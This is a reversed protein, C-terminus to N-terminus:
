QHLDFGEIHVDLNHNVRLGVIGKTDVTKAEATHVTQGNVKFDVKATNQKADIELLNTAKGQADAKKVAPHATWGKTIETTKEGNRQKILYTGDGRVLFYTYKQGNGNLAQGGFFLGYGEPHTPNKMQNFRALTHFPGNARDKERYLITAPGLTLHYGPEMVVFKVNKMEGQGDPRASWGAPLAGGGAVPKDKDEVSAQASASGVACALLTAALLATLPFPHRM